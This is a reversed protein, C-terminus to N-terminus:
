KEVIGLDGESMIDRIIKGARTAATVSSAVLRLILPTSQAMSCVPKQLLSNRLNFSCPKITCFTTGAVDGPLGKTGIVDGFLSVSQRDAM